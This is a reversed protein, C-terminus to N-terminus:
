CNAGNAAFINHTPRSDCSKKLLLVDGKYKYIFKFCVSFKKNSIKEICM